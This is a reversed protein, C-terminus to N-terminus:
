EVEDIEQENVVWILNSDFRVMIPYMHSGDDVHRIEGATGAPVYDVDGPEGLDSVLKVASGVKM